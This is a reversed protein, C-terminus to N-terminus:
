TTADLQELVLLILASNEQTLARVQAAVRASTVTTRALYAANV